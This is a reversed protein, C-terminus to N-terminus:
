YSSVQAQHFESIQEVHLSLRHLSKYRHLIINKIFFDSPLLEFHIYSIIVIMAKPFKRVGVNMKNPKKKSFFVFFLETVVTHYLM